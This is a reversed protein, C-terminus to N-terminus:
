PTFLINLLKDYILSEEWGKATVYMTIININEKCNTLHSHTKKHEDTSIFMGSFTLAIGIRM